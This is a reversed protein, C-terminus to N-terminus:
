ETAFLHKEIDSLTKFELANGSPDYFLMSAQEGPEGELRVAPSLIFEVKDTLEVSLALWKEMELVVGYHPVPIVGHGHKPFVHHQIRGQSGLETDLHCVLQHGYLNLDVWDSSSRGVECHLVNTYFDRAEDIDRVPIALHFPTITKM